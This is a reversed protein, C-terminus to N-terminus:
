HSLKSAAIVKSDARAHTRTGGMFLPTKLQLLIEGSFLRVGVSVDTGHAEIFQSLVVLPM